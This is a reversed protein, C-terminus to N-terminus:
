GAIYGFVSAVLGTNSASWTVGNPMYQCSDGFNILTGTNAAISITPILTKPSAAKDLVTFTLAGGTTNSVWITNIWTDVSVLATPSTPVAQLAGSLEKSPLQRRTM